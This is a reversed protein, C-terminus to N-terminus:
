NYEILFYLQNNVDIDNWQGASGLSGTSIPWQTIGMGLGDQGDSDDPENGWKSFLDDVAMGSADGEWFQVGTGDNDGDWFWSGEKDM